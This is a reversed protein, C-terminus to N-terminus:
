LLAIVTVDTGIDLSAFYARINEASEWEQVNLFHIAIQRLASAVEHRLMKEAPDGATDIGDSAALSLLAMEASYFAIQQTHDASLEDHNKLFSGITRVTSLISSINQQLHDSLVLM